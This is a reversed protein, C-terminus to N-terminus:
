KPINIFICWIVPKDTFGDIDSTIKHSSTGQTEPIGLKVLQGVYTLCVHLYQNENKETIEANSTVEQIKMSLYKKTKRIATYGKGEHGM